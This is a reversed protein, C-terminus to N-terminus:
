HTISSVYVFDPLRSFDGASGGNKSLTVLRARSYTRGGALMHFDARAYTRGEALVRCNACVTM